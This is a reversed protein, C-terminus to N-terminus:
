FCDNFFFLRPVIYGMASPIRPKISKGFKRLTNICFHVYYRYQFEFESAIINTDLENGVVAYPSKRCKIKLFWVPLKVYRVM